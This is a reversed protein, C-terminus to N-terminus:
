AKFRRTWLRFLSAVHWALYRPSRHSQRQAHHVVAAGGIRAIRWGLARIRMSLDVDECYLRYATDFGRAQAFAERRILLFAGALWDPEQPARWGPFRRRIIEYPTVRGRESEKQMTDPQVLAPAVIGLGRDATGAALLAPFPDGFVFEIDPNLVAFWPTECYEFARNHNTAFGHPQQNNLQILDFMAGAPKALQSDPLNHTVIVRAVRSNALHAIQDLESAVLQGHGHSVISVTIM